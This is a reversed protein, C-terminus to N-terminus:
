RKFWSEPLADKEANLLEDIMAKSDAISSVMPDCLFARLLLAKDGSAAAKATLEHSDLVQQWLGRLGVPANGVPRPVPGKMSLDCLIELFADDPMNSVAGNNSTNIFFPKKLGAWMTEIVDTAHDPGYANKFEGINRTGLVFADVERWMEAHREYRDGTEWISLPPIPEPTKGLGQWFRLYEKTHAACTPVYGFSEYLSVSIASNFASKAGTDGGETEKASERSLSEAIRPSLDRGEYEAKILWTFHNPGAIRFDFKRDIEDNWDEPKSIIGARIAYHRKVHPMHLGDCLAFSKLEPAFIKLGIGNAATPNIYNIVWADPCIEKIKRCYDLIKPFERLTRFIGGPGITDGSCMRIGCKLAASCDIGRFKVSRGAFSMVVFDADALVDEANVSAELKLPVKSYSIVKKALASMRELHVTDKDVLALTGKNLHESNVMQWIAQRGFFLSGAGIVAVKPKQM